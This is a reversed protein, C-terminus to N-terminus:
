LWLTHKHTDLKTDELFTVLLATLPGIDSSTQQAVSLFTLNKFFTTHQWIIFAFNKKIGTSFLIATNSTWLIQAPM